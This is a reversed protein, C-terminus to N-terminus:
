VPTAPLSQSRVVDLLVEREVPKPLITANGLAGTRLGTATLIVIPIDRRASTHHRDWFEWGSMVPMMLDLIILRPHLGADLAELALRGNAATVVRFGEDELVLRLVERVDDDDDIVLLLPLAEEEAKMQARSYLLRVADEVLYIAV